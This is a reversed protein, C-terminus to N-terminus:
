KELCFITELFPDLPIPDLMFSINTQELPAHKLSLEIANLLNVNAM